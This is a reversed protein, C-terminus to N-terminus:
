TRREKERVDSTSGMCKKHARTKRACRIHKGHTKSTCSKKMCMQHTKWANKMHVAMERVDSTNGMHKEHACGTKMRMQHTEWTNRM